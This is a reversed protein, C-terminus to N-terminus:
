VNHPCINNYIRMSVKTHWGDTAAEYTSLDWPYGKECLWMLIDVHLNEAAANYILSYNTYGKTM